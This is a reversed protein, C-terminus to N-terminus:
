IEGKEAMWYTIKPTYGDVLYSVTKPRIMQGIKLIFIVGLINRTNTHQKVSLESIYQIVQAKGCKVCHYVYKQKKPDYRKRFKHRCLRQRVWIIINELLM